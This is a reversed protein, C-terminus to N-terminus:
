TADNPFADGDDSWGDSDSDLCGYRDRYSTGFDTPCADGEVGIISDDYGDGDSDNWPSIEAPHSDISDAWGDGDGDLCGFLGGRLSLGYVSPCGDPLTGTANDGYGDQDTNM